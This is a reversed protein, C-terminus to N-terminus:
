CEDTLAPLASEELGYAVIITTRDECLKKLGEQILHETETDVASTAEDLLIIEPCKLIARAIAV